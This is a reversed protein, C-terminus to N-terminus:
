LPKRLNDSLTTVRRILHLEGLLDFGLGRREGDLPPRNAPDRRIRVICAHNRRGRDLLNGRRTGIAEPVIHSLVGARTPAAASVNCGILAPVGYEVGYSWQLLGGTTATQTPRLDVTRQLPEFSTLLDWRFSGAEFTGMIFQGPSVTDPRLDVSYGRPKSYRRCRMRDNYAPRSTFVPRGKPVCSWPPVVTGAGVRWAKLVRTLEGLPLAETVM